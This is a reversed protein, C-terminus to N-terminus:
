GSELFRIAPVKRAAFGAHLGRCRPTRAKARHIRTHQERRASTGDASQRTRFTEANPRASTSTEGSGSPKRTRRTPGDAAAGPEPRRGGGGRRRRPPAARAVRRSERSAGDLEGDEPAVRQPRDSVDRHGRPVPLVQEEERDPTANRAARASRPPEPGRLRRAFGGRRPRRARADCEDQDQRRHRRDVASKRM